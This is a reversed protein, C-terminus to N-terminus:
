AQFLFKNCFLFQIKFGPSFFGLILMKPELHGVLDKIILFKVLIILDKTSFSVVKVSPIYYM